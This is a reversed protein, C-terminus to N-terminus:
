VGISTVEPAYNIYECNPCIAVNEIRLEHTYANAPPDGIEFIGIGDQTTYNM